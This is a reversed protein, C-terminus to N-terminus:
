KSKGIAIYKCFIKFILNKDDFLEKLSYYCYQVHFNQLQKSFRIKFKTPYKLICMEILISHPCSIILQLKLSPM